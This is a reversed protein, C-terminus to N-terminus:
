SIPDIEHRMNTKKNNFVKKPDITSYHSSQQQRQQQENMAAMAIMAKSNLTNNNVSGLTTTRFPSKVNGNSISASSSVHLQRKQQVQQQQLQLQQQKANAKLSSSTATAASYPADEDASEDDDDDDDDGDNEDNDNDAVEDNEDDDDMEQADSDNSENSNLQKAYKNRRRAKSAATVATEDTEEDIEDDGGDGYAAQGRSRNSMKEYAFLKKSNGGGGNSYSSSSDAGGGLLLAGASGTNDYYTDYSSLLPQPQPQPPAALASVMHNTNHSYTNISHRAGSAAYGAFLTQNPGAGAAAGNFTVDNPAKKYSINDSASSDDGGGVGSPGCCCSCCGGGGGSSSGGKAHAHPEGTGNAAMFVDHGCCCACMVVFLLFGGGVGVITYITRFEFANVASKTEQSTGLTLLVSTSNGYNNEQMVLFEYYKDADAPTIYPVEKDQRSEDINVRGSLKLHRDHDLSVEYITLFATTGGQNFGPTCSFQAFTKNNVSAFQVACREPPNPTAGLEVHIDCKATGALSRPICEYLGFDAQSAPTIRYRASRKLAELSTSELMEFRTRTSPAILKYYTVDPNSASIACEITLTRNVGTRYTREAHACVPLYYVSLTADKVIHSRLDISNALEAPLDRMTAECRVRKGNMARTANVDFSYTNITMSRVPDLARRDLRSLRLETTDIYASVSSVPNTEPVECKITFPQAEHVQVEKQYDFKVSDGSFYLLVYQLQVKKNKNKM